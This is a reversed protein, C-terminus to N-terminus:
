AYPRYTNNLNKWTKKQACITIKRGGLGFLWWHPRELDVINFGNRVVSYIDPLTYGDQNKTKARVSFFLCGNPRLVRHAEKVRAVSVAAGDMIVVNFQEDEYPFSAVAGISRTEQGRYRVFADPFGDKPFGVELSTRIDKLQHM